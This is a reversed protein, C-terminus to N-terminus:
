RNRTQVMSFIKLEIFNYKTQTNFVKRGFFDVPCNHQVLVVGLQCKHTNISSEFIINFDPVLIIYCAILERVIKFASKHEGTLVFPQKKFDHAAATM